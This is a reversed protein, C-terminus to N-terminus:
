RRAIKNKKMEERTPIQATKDFLHNQSTQRGIDTQRCDRMCMNLWPNAQVLDDLISSVDRSLMPKESVYVSGQQWVFGNKEMHSQIIDYAYNWNDKPYYIKLANTDLDFAVQKKWTAM